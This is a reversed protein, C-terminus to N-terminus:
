VVLARESMFLRELDITLERARVGAGAKLKGHGSDLMGMVLECIICYGDQGQRRLQEAAAALTKDWNDRLYEM